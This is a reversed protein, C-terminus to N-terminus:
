LFHFRTFLHIHVPRDPSGNIRHLLFNGIYIGRKKIVSESSFFTFNIHVIADLRLVLLIEGLRLMLNKAQIYSIQAELTTQRSNVDSHAVLLRCTTANLRKNLSQVSRSSSKATLKPKLDWSEKMTQWQESSQPNPACETRAWCRLLNEFQVM